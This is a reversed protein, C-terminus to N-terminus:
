SGTGLAKALQRYRKIKGKVTDLLMDISFPKTLYDDAGIGKGYRVMGEDTLGSLFLFPVQMLHNLQRVKEYFSFGGMTSTELNVDSIILDPTGKKLALLADDSTEFAVVGFGAHELTEVLIKLITEEDDILYITQQQNSQGTEGLVKSEIKSQDASSIQFKKRLEAVVANREKAGLGSSWALKFAQAYSETRAEQELVAHDAPAIGLSDRLAGLQAEEEKSLAGDAWALLLVRKYIFRPDKPSLTESPAPPSSEKKRKEEEARRFEQEFNRKAEEEIKRRDLAAKTQESQVTREQAIKRQDEAARQAEATKKQIEESSRRKVEDDKRRREEEAKRRQEELRQRAQQEMQLRAADAGNKKLAEERLVSIREEFAYIYANRPDIVKARGIEQLANALQGAKILQDVGKLIENAKKRLEEPAIPQSMLTATDSIIGGDAETIQM